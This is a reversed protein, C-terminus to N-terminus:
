PLIMNIQWIKWIMKKKEKILFLNQHNKKENFNLTAIAASPGARESWFTSSIFSNFSKKMINERGLVATIGYGNGIAKGFIVIDPNVKFKKHIGGYTERFGLLANM